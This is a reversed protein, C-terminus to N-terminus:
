IIKIKQPRSYKTPYENTWNIKYLKKSTVLIKCLHSYTLGLYKATKIRSNNFKPLANKIKPIIENYFFDRKKAKTKKSNEIKRKEQEETLNSFPIHGNSMLKKMTKKQISSRIKTPLIPPKQKPFPYEKNWDVTYIRKMYSYFLNRSIGMEKSAKLRVNNNNTLAEIMKEKVANMEEKDWKVWHGKYIMGKRDELARTKGKRNIHSWNEKGSKFGISLIHDLDTKNFRNTYGEKRIIEKKFLVNNYNPFSAKKIQEWNEFSLKRNAQIKYNGHFMFGQIAKVKILPDDKKLKKILTKKASDYSKARIFTKFDKEVGDSYKETYNINWYQDFPFTKSRFKKQCSSRKKM